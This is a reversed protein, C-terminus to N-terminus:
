NAPSWIFKSLKSKWCFECHICSADELDDRLHTLIHM